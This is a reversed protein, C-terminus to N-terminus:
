PHGFVATKCGAVVEENEALLFDGTPVEDPGRRSFVTRHLLRSSRDTSKKGPRSLDNRIEAAEIPLIKEMTIEVFVTGFEGFHVDHWFPLNSDVLIVFYYFNAVIM